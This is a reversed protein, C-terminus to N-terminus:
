DEITGSTSSSSVAQVNPVVSEWGPLNRMQAEASEKFQALDRSAVPDATPFKQSLPDVVRGNAWFEFHLHPGTSLGSTGVYGIIQGQQVKVGARIGAGFRSMHLYSTKFSANHNIKVTRGGGGHWSALTVTGGGVARIPTGTPAGYDVGLHPRSIKLVPHFRKRNFRSTIRGYPIPSKLFMRRLSSGDPAYYGPAGNAPQFFVASRLEGANEYEAALINGWGVPEGKVYKQEVTLRWRDNMRVERAFDVQWAFIEALQVVLYPDMNAAESSEWLSNTVVGKFSIIKTDIKESVKQAVWVGQIKKLELKEVASFRFDIGVLDNNEYTLRFRTGSTMRGLDMVPKTATVVQHITQPDVNLGRLVTYFTSQKPITYPYLQEVPLRPIEIHPELNAEAVDPAQESSFYYVGGATLFVLFLFLGLRRFPHEFLYMSVLTHASCVCGFCFLQCLAADLTFFLNASSPNM